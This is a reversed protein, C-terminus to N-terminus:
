LFYLSTGTVLPDGTMSPPRSISPKGRRIEVKRNNPSLPKTASLVNLLPKTTACFACGGSGDVCSASTTTVASYRSSFSCSVGIAIVAIVACSM